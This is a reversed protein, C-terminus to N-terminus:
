NEILLYTYGGNIPRSGATTKLGEIKITTKEPLVITGNFDYSINNEYIYVSKLEYFAEGFPKAMIHSKFDDGKGANIEWRVLVAHYGRPVMSFGQITSHQTDHILAQTTGGTTDTITINGDNTELSGATKAIARHIIIFSKTTTVTTTGNMTVTEEIEDYNGDLGKIFITRAGTGASTDNVSDSVIDMTDASSMQTWSFPATLEYTGGTTENEGFKYEISWKRNGYVGTVVRRDYETLFLVSGIQTDDTM